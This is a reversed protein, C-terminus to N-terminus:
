MEIRLHHHLLAIWDEWFLTAEDKLYKTMDANGGTIIMDSAYLVVLIDLGNIKVYPKPDSLNKCIWNLGHM